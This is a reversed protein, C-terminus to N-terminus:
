NQRIYLSPFEASRQYHDVIRPDNMNRIAFDSIVRPKYKEVITYIDYDYPKLSRYKDMQMGPAVSYWFYDVDKRFLNFKNNGDYVYDQPRTIQKVYNVRALQESQNSWYLHTTKMALPTISAIVLCLAIAVRNTRFLQVMGWGAVIAILPMSSLYYWYAQSRWAVAFFLLGAAIAALELQAREKKLLLGYCFFLLTIAGLDRINELLRLRPFPDGGGHANMEFNLLFYTGLADTAYLYLLYASWVGVLAVGFGLLRQMPLLKQLTRLVLVAGTLLILFIAKQLFLFAIGLFVGGLLLDRVRDNRLYHFVYYLSLMGFFTQPVDPRVEIGTNLFFINYALLLTAVLATLRDFLLKALLYTLGLIGASLGFTLGRAIFLVATSDGFVLFVPALLYYLLPHHHQFFDVYVREGQVVKWASHLAEFEDVHFPHLMALAALLAITAILLAWPVLDALKDVLPQMIFSTPPSSKADM